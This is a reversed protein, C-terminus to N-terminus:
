AAVRGDAARWRAGAGQLAAGGTCLVDARQEALGHGALVRCLHPAERIDDHVWMM